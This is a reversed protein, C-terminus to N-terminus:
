NLYGLIVTLLKLAGGGGIVGLQPSFSQLDKLGNFVFFIEKDIYFHLAQRLALL